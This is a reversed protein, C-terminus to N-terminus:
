QRKHNASGYHAVPDMQIVDEEQKTRRALMAELQEKTRVSGMQQLQAEIEAATLDACYITSGPQQRWSEQLTGGDVPDFGLCDVLEMLVAKAKPDDGAVPLGIRGPAGQPKGKDALSMFLISNFVKVVQRGLHRQVWESDALNGDLEDIAGDRLKPYYNGTDVVVVERGVGAFLDAPLEPIKSQPITVIVIEGSAVAERVSVPSAGTEAAIDRLSEPGRSNSLYVTHGLATLRRTLVSGIYGSGIIGIKM